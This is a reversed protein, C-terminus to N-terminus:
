VLVIDFPGEEISETDGGLMARRWAPLMESSNDPTFDPNSSFLIADIRGNFGSLDKLSLEVETSDISVTGGKEWFWDVGETGFVTEQVTGNIELQFVGPPSSPVIDDAFKEIWNKTRVWYTYEGAEPFTVTTKADEVPNGLGHALLYPSGMVHIFQTDLKWGGPNEFSEAEVLVENGQIVLPLLLLFSLIRLKMRM